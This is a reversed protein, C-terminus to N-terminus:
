IYHLATEALVEFLKNWKSPEKWGKNDRTTNSEWSSGLRIQEFKQQPSPPLVTLIWMHYGIQFRSSGLECLHASVWLSKVHVCVYLQRHIGGDCARFSNWSLICSSSAHTAMHLSCMGCALAWPRGAAQPWGSRCESFARIPTSTVLLWRQVGEAHLSHKAMSCFSKEPLGLKLSWAYSNSSKASGTQGQLLTVEVHCVAFATCRGHLCRPASREWTCGEVGKPACFLLFFGGGVSLKPGFCSWSMGDRGLTIGLRTTIALEQCNECCGM